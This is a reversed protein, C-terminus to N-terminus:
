MRERQRRRKRRRKLSLMTPNWKYEIFSSPPPSLSDHSRRVADKKGCLWNVLGVAFPEEGPVERGRKRKRRRRRGVVSARCRCDIFSLLMM